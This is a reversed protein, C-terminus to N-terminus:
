SVRFLRHMASGRIKKAWEVLTKFGIYVKGRIKKIREVFTKSGIYENERIRKIRLFNLFKQCIELSSWYKEILKKKLNQTSFYDCRIWQQNIMDDNLLAFEPLFPWFLNRHFHFIRYMTKWSDIEDRGSINLVRHM